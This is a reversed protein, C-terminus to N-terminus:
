AIPELAQHMAGVVGVFDDIARQGSPGPLSAHFTLSSVTIAAGYEDSSASVADWPSVYTIWQDLDPEDDAICVVLKASTAILLAERESTGGTVPLVTLVDENRLRHRIKEFPLGTLGALDKFRM